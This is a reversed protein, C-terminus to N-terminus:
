SMGGVFAYSRPLSIKLPYKGEPLGCVSYFLHLRLQFGQEEITMGVTLFSKSICSVLFILSLFRRKPADQAM